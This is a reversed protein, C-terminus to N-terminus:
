NWIENTAVFSSHYLLCCWHEVIQLRTNSIRTEQKIENFPVQEIKLDGTQAHARAKKNTHWQRRTHRTVRRSSWMTRTWMTIAAVVVVVIWLKIYFSIPAIKKCVMRVRWVLTRLLLIVIIMLGLKNDMTRCISLGALRETREYRQLNKWLEDCKVIGFTITMSLGDITVRNWTIKM